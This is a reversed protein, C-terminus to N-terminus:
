DPKDCGAEYPLSPLLTPINTCDPATVNPVGIIKVISKPVSFFM